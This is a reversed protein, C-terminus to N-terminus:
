VELERKVGKKRERKKKKKEKLVIGIGVNSPNTDETEYGWFIMCNGLFGKDFQNEYPYLTIYPYRKANLVENTTINLRIRFFTVLLLGFAVGFWCCVWVEFLAVFTPYNFGAHRIPGTKFMNQVIEDLLFVSVFLHVTHTLLMLFFVRHNNKGVCNDIWPCHHDFVEVCKGCRSCHKSRVLRPIRCTACITVNKSSWNLYSVTEREIYGPNM